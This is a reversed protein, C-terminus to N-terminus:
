NQRFKGHSNYFNMWLANSLPQEDYGVAIVSLKAVIHYDKFKLFRDKKM